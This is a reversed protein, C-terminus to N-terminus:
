LEPFGPFFTISLVGRNEPFSVGQLGLIAVTKKSSTLSIQEEDRYIWPVSSVVGAKM